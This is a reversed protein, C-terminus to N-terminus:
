HDEGGGDRGEVERALVCCVNCSGTEEACCPSGRMTLPFGCPLRNQSIHHFVPSMIQQRPSIKLPSNWASLRRSLDSRLLVGTSMVLASSRSQGAVTCLAFLDHEWLCSGLLRVRTSRALPAAAWSPAWSPFARRLPPAAAHACSRLWAWCPTWTTARRAAPAAQVGQDPRRARRTAPRGPARRLTGLKDAPPMPARTPFMINGLQRKLGAVWSQTNGTKWSHFVNSM